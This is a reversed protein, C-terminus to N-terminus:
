REIESRVPDSSDDEDTEPVIGSRGDDTAGGAGSDVNEVEDGAYIERSSLARAEAEAEAQADPPGLQELISSTRSLLTKLNRQAVSSIAIVRGHGSAEKLLRVTQEAHEAVHPLDTKTLVVVQPIDRLTQSYIALEHNISMLEAVADKSEGDILHLLLRCRETHRLFALGLGKGAAAGEILGPIDLWVMPRSRLGFRQMECVGLNPILTTFPYDAVKPRARTVARLLSSKGANPVGVLGVDAVLTMSLVLWKKQTGGPSTKGKSDRKTRFWVDGNGEGGHGGEAVLLRSGHSVLKGLTTNTARDVILCNPPVRVVVDSGRAGAERAQGDHGREAQFNGQNPLHSLTNYDSTCEIYVDGGNGGSGGAPRQGMFGIAGEGGAGSRVFVEVRDFFFRELESAADGALLRAVGVRQQWPLVRGAGYLRHAATLTLAHVIFVAVGRSM